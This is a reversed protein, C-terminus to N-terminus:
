LVPKEPQFPLTKDLRKFMQNTSDPLNKVELVMFGDLANSFKPDLNFGIIKANQKLYKKLLVPIGAQKVEIKNVLDNLSSISQLSQGLIQRATPESLRYRFKKRPKVHQALDLDYYHNLIFDVILAKSFPSFFNSISVPGILYKYDPKDELFVSIGKWLLLLPLPQKQYEPRVFSRGLEVSQKLVEVFPDKMKFLSHLYFGKKGYEAVIKDGEGLRYAGAIVKAERDFVFLHKYHQDYHDLDQEKGTGEGIQRFTLERLRSIERMTNPIEKIGALYVDFREHTLLRAAPKLQQLESVIESAHMEAILKQPENVPQLMEELRSLRAKEPNLAYTRARLYALRDSASFNQLEAYSVPKGLRIKIQRSRKNFLEAPLCATRLLPHLLGAAHFALSNSGSFHMPIVPVKALDVLRGIANKWEPDTVKGNALSFASVEGAPFIGVPMDNNLQELVARLGPVNKRSEAKFPDVPIFAAKLGSLKLLLQNVVIKFDPRAELMLRLMLLGDLGGYPHNAVVIFAGKAPINKLEQEDVKYTVGLKQLIADVFAVGELRHTQEYLANLDTLKLLRMFLPTAFDRPVKNLPWATGLEQKSILEM